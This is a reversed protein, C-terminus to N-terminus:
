TRVFMIVAAVLGLIVVGVVGLMLLTPVDISFSVANM